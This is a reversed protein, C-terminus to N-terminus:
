PGLPFSFLTFTVPFDNVCLYNLSLEKKHNINFFFIDTKVHLLESWKEDCLKLFPFCVSWEFM